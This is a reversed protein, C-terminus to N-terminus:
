QKDLIDRANTHEVCDKLDESDSIELLEVIEKPLDNLSSKRFDEIQNIVREDKLNTIWNILSIKKQEITM